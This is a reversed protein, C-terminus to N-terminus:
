KGLSLLVLELGHSTDYSYNYSYWAFMEDKDCTEIKLVSLIAYYLVAVLVYIRQIYIFM